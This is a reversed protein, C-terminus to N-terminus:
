EDIDGITRSDPYEASPPTDPNGSGYYCELGETMMDIVGLLPGGGSSVESGDKGYLTFAFGHDMQVVAGILREGPYVFPEPESGQVVPESISPQEAVKAMAQGDQTLVAAHLLDIRAHFADHKASNSYVICDCDTCRWNGQTWVYRDSM